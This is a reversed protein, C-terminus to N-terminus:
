EKPKPKVTLLLESVDKEQQAVAEKKLRVKTLSKNLKKLKSSKPGNREIESDIQELLRKEDADWRDYQSIIKNLERIAKQPSKKYSRELVSDMAEWLETRSQDGKLPIANSGDYDSVFLHPPHKDEFLAHFPHDVETIHTPLKVCHFWRSMLFTRQNDNGKSLLADDTGNCTDCERLILLPRLDDGAIEAYAREAPLAVRPGSAVTGRTPAANQPQPKHFVPYDWPM